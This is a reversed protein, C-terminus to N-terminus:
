VESGLVLLKSQLSNLSTAEADFFAKLTAYRLNLNAISDLINQINVDEDCCPSACPNSIVVGNSAATVTTCDLGFLNFNRAEPEPLLGNISLIPAGFRRVLEDLIDEDSNLQLLSDANLSAAITVVTENEGAVVQTDVDMTINAGERLKVNGTFLRDNISIYLVNLLGKGIRATSIFTSHEDDVQSFSWSGLFQGSETTDGITIQGTM